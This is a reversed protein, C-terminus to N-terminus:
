LATVGPFGAARIGGHIQEPRIAGPTYVVTITGNSAPSAAPPVPDVRVRVVGPLALLAAELRAVAGPAALGEVRFRAKMAVTRVAAVERTDRRLLPALPM